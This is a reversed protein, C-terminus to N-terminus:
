DFSIGFRSEVEPWTQSFTKELGTKLWENQRVYLYPNALKEAERLWSPKNNLQIQDRRYLNDGSVWYASQMDNKDMFLLMLKARHTQTFKLRPPLEDRKIIFFDGEFEREKVDVFLMGKPLPIMFDLRTWDRKQFKTPDFDSGMGTDHQWLFSHMENGDFLWQKIRRESKEMKLKVEPTYTVTDLATSRSFFRSLQNFIMSM